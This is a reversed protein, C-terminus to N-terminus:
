VWGMHLKILAIILIHVPYIAYFAYKNYKGTGIFGRTGDYMNILVLGPVTYLQSSLMCCALAASIAPQKRLAYFLIIVGVGRIGYDARLILGAALIAVLFLAIYGQDDLLSEICWIALLGLLLTWVVNQSSLDVVRGVHELDWPIESIIALVFLGGAYRTRSSTHLFGEVILFAFIPFSCRGIVRLIWVLTVATDGLMVIPTVFAPIHSLLHHAIHDIVMTVAAIVKLISGSLVRYRNPLFSPQLGVARAGEKSVVEDDMAHGKYFFAPLM